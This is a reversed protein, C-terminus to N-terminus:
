GFNAKKFVLTRLSDFYLYLIPTVILTLGQSFILGGIIVLGLGRHMPNGFVLPLAGLVAAFTTMMIPRFRVLCGEFVAEKCSLGMRQRELAYDVIMIGNKKVIGILLLFGVASFLSLPEGFLFLTLIGGLGALPLSSLITLPHIFSEYLIGLVAYMALTAGLLLLGWERQNSEIMSSAGSFKGKVSSPLVSKAVEDMKKIGDGPSLGEKLSFRINAAPLHDLHHLSFAGVKEQWSSVTKLPLAQGTKNMISLKSLEQSQLDLLVPTSRVGTQLYGIPNQGFSYGIVEQIQQTTLGYLGAKKEDIEIALKPTNHTQASKVATFEKSTQLTQLLTDRALDVDAFDSGQLTYKYRSTSGFDFDLQIMQYGTFSALIGPIQNLMEQLNQTITTQPPREQSLRALILHKDDLHVDLFDEIYPNELIAEQIKRSYGNPAQVSGIIFGRDEDPFLQVPLHTFLAYTAGISLGALMLIPLPRALCYQLIKGYSKLGWITHDKTSLPLFRSCLLPTLTLSIFGSVLIACALTVSFERFLRGNMGGMFLIPIFVAVLSLTMSLITFSIEKTGELTATLRNTEKKQHRIINEVVVIADDVVFGVSLTLALLSLLDLSFGAFYIIALTGLISLPLAVSPILALTFRGLSLYIVLIVLFLALLLTWQVEHIAEEIWRAKNFWIQLQFTPPLSNQLPILAKEVNKSVAVSNAGRVKQIGFLLAPENKEPSIFFVDRDEKSRFSFTGIDKLRVKTEGILLEGLAKEDGGAHTLELYLKKNGSKINGLPKQTLHQKLTDIVQNFSIGRAAMMEQNLSLWLSSNSGFVKVKAIGEIRSLKPVIVSEAYAELTKKEKGDATLLLYLISENGGEELQYSPRKIDKPLESDARALASQVARLAENMNASFDFTLKIESTGPTSYSAMEQVGSVHILEKELPITVHDLVTQPSAGAYTTEINIIPKEVTPLDNIPLHLYAFSGTLIIALTMLTTMVPRLIFPSSLNM